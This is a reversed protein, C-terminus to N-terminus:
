SKYQAIEKQAVSPPFVNLNLIKDWVLNYKQSWTNPQDFALRSHTGDNSAQMWHQAFTKALTQYKDANATEGRMRCLDAYAALALIAKVSLNANHALHGMFDDTCLQDEPDNGYQELYQAWQSLHPWWPSVFNANGDERAIADCILLINGSEEVPMQEGGNDTGRAIPYTGLDHPANPFRWRPSSGYLLIPVISAKALTPSFLILEPDMPFIVDVTAIDGNSTNEKTFLLPQKHSDAAIGTGALCQRYALAGMRAYKDGGEKTLDAMLSQDFAECRRTLSSYDREASQFLDSPTAGNRRWYPRLNQGFFKIAYVEDYGIMLHRAVPAAGVNGLDFTFALVPQDDNVARPMDSDDKAPLVGDEIFADELTENFGIAANAQATPAAAYAYGWDLRADDGSVDFYGQKPTGVRLATLTGMPERSWQVKQDPTNVALESSTSDYLGVKHAAGDVSRVNWTLYTVPRTLVNLDHPLVPTMFTLTVHVGSGEFDYISRTPLVQLGVQPLAPGTGPDNGMLRYTNGDIRILSVLSHEHHTWHRTTDDTLHDAESWISLFPNSVVLPVAPPRFEDAAKVSPTLVAALAAFLLFPASKSM